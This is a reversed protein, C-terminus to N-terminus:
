MPLDFSNLIRIVTSHVDNLAETRKKSYRALNRRQSTTLSNLYRYQLNLNPMEIGIEQKWFDSMGTLRLAGINTTLVLCGSAAAEILARDVGKTTGSFYYCFQRLLNPIEIPELVGQFKAQVNLKECTSAIENRYSIDQVPGVFYIVNCRPSSSQDVLIQFVEDLHKARSIRGITLIQDIKRYTSSEGVHSFRSVDIAQGVDVLKDSELPFSEKSPSFIKDAIATAIRLEFPSHEHSYWLGQKIRFCKAFIGPFIVTRHSMHHFILTGKREAYLNPVLRLLRTLAQVRNSLSGGGLEIVKIKKLSPPIVGVRTSVVLIKDFYEQFANVLAINSSLLTSQSDLELNFLVLKNYRNM